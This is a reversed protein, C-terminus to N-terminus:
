FLGVLLAGSHASGFIGLGLAGSTLHFSVLFLVALCPLAAAHAIPLEYRFAIYSLTAFDFICVLLLALPSPWALLGAALMVIMGTLAVATGTTRWIGAKPHDAFSRHVSLGYTVVPWAALAVLLAVHSLAPSVDGAFLREGGLYVLFGLPLTLSFMCLGLFAFLHRSQNDRDTERRLTRSLMLGSSSLYCAIPIIGLPLLWSPDREGSLFWSFLLQGAGPGVVALPLLW